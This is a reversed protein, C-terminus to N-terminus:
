QQMSILPLSGDYREDRVALMCSSLCYRLHYTERHGNPRRRFARECPRSVAAVHVLVGNRQPLSPELTM